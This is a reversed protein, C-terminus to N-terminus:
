DIMMHCDVLVPSIGHLLLGWLLWMCVNAHLRKDIKNLAAFANSPTTCRSSRPVCQLIRTWAASLLSWLRQLARAVPGTPFHQIDVCTVADLYHHRPSMVLAAVAAVCEIKPYRRNTPAPSAQLLELMVVGFSFIDVAFSVM